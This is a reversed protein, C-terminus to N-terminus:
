IQILNNISDDQTLSPLILRENKVIQNINSDIFRNLEDFHKILQNTLKFLNETQKILSKKMEKNYAIMGKLYELSESKIDDKVLKFAPVHM